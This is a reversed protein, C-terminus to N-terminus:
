SPIFVRSATAGDRILYLPIMIFNSIETEGDKCYCYYCNDGVKIETNKFLSAYEEKSMKNQIPM